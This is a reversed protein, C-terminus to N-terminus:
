KLGLDKLIKAVLGPHLDKRSGHTPMMSKRKGRAVRVHSGKGRQNEFTCGHKSLYRRLERSNM